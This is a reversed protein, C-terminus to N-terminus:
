YFLFADLLASLVDVPGSYVGRRHMAGFMYWISLKHDVMKECGLYCM